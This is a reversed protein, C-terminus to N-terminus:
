KWLYKKHNRIIIGKMHGYQVRGQLDFWQESADDKKSISRIGTIDDPLQYKASGAQTAPIFAKHGKLSYKGDATTATMPCFAPAQDKNVLIYIPSETSYDTFVTDAATGRLLNTATASKATYVMEMTYTKGREGKLVVATGGAIESGTLPTLTLEKKEEDINTLTYAELGPTMKLNNNSYYTMFDLAGGFTVEEEASVINTFYSWAQQYKAVAGAPVYIKVKSGDLAQFADYTKEYINQYTHTPPEDDYVYIARLASCGSFPNYTEPESKGIDICKITSPLVVEELSTCGQFACNGIQTVTYADNVTQPIVVRKITASPGSAGFSIFEVNTTGNLIKYYRGNDDAIDYKIKASISLVSLSFFLFFIFRKKDKM